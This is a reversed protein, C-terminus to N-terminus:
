KNNYLLYCTIMHNTDHSITRSQKRLFKSNRKRHRSYIIITSFHRHFQTTFSDSCNSNSKQCSSKGNTPFVATLAHWGNGGKVEPTILTFSQNCNVKPVGGYIQHKNLLVLEVSYAVSRHHRVSLLSNGFSKTANPLQCILLSTSLSELTIYLIPM